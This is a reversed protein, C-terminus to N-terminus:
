HELSNSCVMKVSQAAQAAPGPLRAPPATWAAQQGAELRELDFPGEVLPLGLQDAVARIKSSRGLAAVKCGAWAAALIALYRSSLVTDYEIFHRTLDEVSTNRYEPMYFSVRQRSFLNALGRFMSAHIFFEAEFDRGTENGIYIVRSQKSARCLFVKFAREDRRARREAFYGVALDFKNTRPAGEPFLSRLAIPALGAGVGVMHVPTAATVNRMDSDIADPMWPGSLFPVPTGRVGIWRNTSRLFEHRHGANGAGFFDFGLFTSRANSQSPMSETVTM